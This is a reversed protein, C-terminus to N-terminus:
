GKITESEPVAYPTGGRPHQVAGGRVAIGDEDVRELKYRGHARKNDKYAHNRWEVEHLPWLAVREDQADEDAAPRNKLCTNKRPARKGPVELLMLLHMDDGM